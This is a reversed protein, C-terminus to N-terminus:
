LQEGHLDIAQTQRTRIWYPSSLSMLRSCL